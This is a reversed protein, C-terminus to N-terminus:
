DFTSRHHAVKRFTLRAPAVISSALIAPSVIRPYSIWTSIAASAARWSPEDRVARHRKNDGTEIAIKNLENTASLDRESRALGPKVLFPFVPNADGRAHRDM